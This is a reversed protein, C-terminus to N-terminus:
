LRCINMAPSPGVELLECLSPLKGLGFQHELTPRRLDGDLLLVKQQQRRALTCALNAAITSKGEGPMASTILLRKFPRKQQLHRLRVGLFRFKEAVLREEDKMCLLTSLSPVLVRTSPFASSFQGGEIGSLQRKGEPPSQALRREAAELLDPAAAFKHPSIGQREGESRHLADFIQSM